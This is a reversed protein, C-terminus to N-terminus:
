RTAKLQLRIQTMLIVDEFIRTHSNLGNLICVYRKARGFPYLNRPDKSVNLWFSKAIRLFIQSAEVLGEPIFRSHYTYVAQGYFYFVEGHQPFDM